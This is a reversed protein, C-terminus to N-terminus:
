KKGWNALTNTAGASAHKRMADRIRISNDSEWPVSSQVRKRRRGRSPKSRPKFGAEDLWKKIYAGNYGTAEYIEIRSLGGTAMKVVEARRSELIEATLKQIKTM